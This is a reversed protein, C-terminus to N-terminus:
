RIICYIQNGREAWIKVIKKRVSKEKRTQEGLLEKNLQKYKGKGEKTVVNKWKRREDMKRIM